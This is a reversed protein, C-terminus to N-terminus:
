GPQSPFPMLVPSIRILSLEQGAVSQGDGVDGDTGHDVVDLVIVDVDTLSATLTVHTPTGGDATGDHVGAVVGMATTFALGGHATGARDSRPALRSQSTYLLCVVTKDMKDSVVKGVRTKRSSIRKEEM